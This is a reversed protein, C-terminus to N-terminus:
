VVFLFVLLEVGSCKFASVLQYFQEKLANWLETTNEEAGQQARSKVWVTCTSQDVYGVGATNQSFGRNILLSCGFYEVFFCHLCM